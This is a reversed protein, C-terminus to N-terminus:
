DRLARRILWWAALVPIVVPAAAVAASGVLAGATATTTAVSTIGTAITTGVVPLAAASSAATTVAAAGANVIGTAITVGTASGAAAAAGGVVNGVTVLGIGAAGAGGIAVAGGIGEGDIDFGGTAVEPDTTLTGDVLVASTDIPVVAGALGHQVLLENFLENYDPTGSEGAFKTLQEAVASNDEDSFHQGIQSWTDHLQENLADLRDRVMSPQNQARELNACLEDINSGFESRIDPALKHEIRRFAFRTVDSLNKAVGLLGSPHFTMIAVGM